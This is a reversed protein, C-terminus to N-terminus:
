TDTLLTSDLDDMNEEKRFLVAFSYAVGGFLILFALVMVVLGSWSISAYKVSVNVSHANSKISVVGPNKPTWSVKSSNGTEISDFIQVQSNPRYIIMIKDSMESLTITVEEGVSPSKPSIEIQAKGLLYAFCLLTTLLMKM